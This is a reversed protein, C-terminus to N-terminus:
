SMEQRGSAKDRSRRRRYWEGAVIAMALPLHASVVLWIMRPMGLESRLAVGVSDPEILSVLVTLDLVAIALLAPVLSWRSVIIGFVTGLGILAGFWPVRDLEPFKDLVEALIHVHSIM